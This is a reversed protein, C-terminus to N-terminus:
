NYCYKLIHTLFKVIITSYNTVMSHVQWQILWKGIHENVYM